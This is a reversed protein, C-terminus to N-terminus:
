RKGSTIDRREWMVWIIWWEQGSIAEVGEDAFLVLKEATHFVEIGDGTVYSYELWGKAGFVKAATNRWRCEMKSSRNREKLEVYVENVSSDDNMQCSENM